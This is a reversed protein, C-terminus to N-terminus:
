FMNVYMLIGFFEMFGGVHKQGRLVLCLPLYCVGVPLCHCLRIGLTLVSM